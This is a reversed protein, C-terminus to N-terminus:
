CPWALVGFAVGMVVIGDSPLSFGAILAVVGLVIVGTGRVLWLIFAKGAARSGAGNVVKSSRQVEARRGLKLM